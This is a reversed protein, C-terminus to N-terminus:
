NEDYVFINMILNIILQFSMEIFLILFFELVMHKLEKKYVTKIVMIIAIYSFIFNIQLYEAITVLSSCIFTSFLLKYVNNNKKDLITWLYVINVMDLSNIFINSLM